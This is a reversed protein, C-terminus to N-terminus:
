LLLYKNEYDKLTLDFGQNFDIKPSWGYSRAISSDVIKRPTGDPKSNDLVIKCKYNIKKLIFKAYELISMERGSGINILTEKTKKNIFYICADAVDDVYTLERKAKGNGWLIIEKKKNKKALISKVLLAALFHSTKLNYNDNPGYLNSPMLCKYNTKYQFNYSECMKIGAIKAIAYPENTKELEATLLYKEKIPQKCNRPYICSSGLFILSKIKNKYCAHIVNNQISLNDYIFDAKYKQNAYIGGVKAAANIVAKIKNKSFFNSVQQQNRLDLKKKSVTLIKTFNKKKLLRYIASGVLGNHGTLFIVDNKKIM